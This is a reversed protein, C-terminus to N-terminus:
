WDSCGGGHRGTKLPLRLTTETGDNPDKGKLYLRSKLAFHNSSEKVKLVEDERVKAIKGERLSRLPM